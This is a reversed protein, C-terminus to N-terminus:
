AGEWARRLLAELEADVEAPSSLLARSKLRESWSENRPAELRAASDPPVALGVMAKGGKTPRAAAFQVKRSWATYGKRATRVVEGLGQAAADLREFIAKSAPDAWLLDILGDADAWSMPSGFAQGLVQSAHNQLLGHNDKLWKLRARHATEPCARAIAVWADLTKGTKKELSARVSAFWKQQRETLNHDSM